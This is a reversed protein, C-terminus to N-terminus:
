RYLTKVRGWSQAGRAGVLPSLTCRLLLECDCTGDNLPEGPGVIPGAPWRYTRGVRATSYCYGCAQPGTPGAAPYDCYFDSTPAGTPTYLFMFTEPVEVNWTLTRWRQCGYGSGARAYGARARSSCWYPVSRIALAPFVPVGDQDVEHISVTNSFQSYGTSWTLLSTQELLSRGDCADILVGVEGLGAASYLWGTCANYYQVECPAGRGWADEDDQLRVTTQEWAAPSSTLTLIAVTGLIPRPRM